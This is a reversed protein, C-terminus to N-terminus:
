IGAFQKLSLSNLLLKPEALAINNILQRTLKTKTTIRHPDNLLNRKGDSESYNSARRESRFDISTSRRLSEDIKNLFSTFYDSYWCYSDLYRSRMTLPHQLWIASGNGLMKELNGFFVHQWYIKGRKDSIDSYGFIWLATTRHFKRAGFESLFLSIIKKFKRLIFLDLGISGEIFLM